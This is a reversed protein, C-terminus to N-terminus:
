INLLNKIIGVNASMTMHSLKEDLCIDSKEVEHLREM